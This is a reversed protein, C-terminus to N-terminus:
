RFVRAGVAWRATVKEIRNVQIDFGDILEVRVLRQRLLNRAIIELLTQARQAGEIDDVVTADPRGLQGHQLCQVPYELLRMSCAGRGPELRKALELAFAAFVQEFEGQEFGQLFLKM